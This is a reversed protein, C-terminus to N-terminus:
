FRKTIAGHAIKPDNFPYLLAMRSFARHMPLAPNIAQAIAGNIRLSGYSGGAGVRQDILATSRGVERSNLESIEPDVTDITADVTDVAPGATAVTPDITSSRASSGSGRRVWHAFTAECRNGPLCPYQSTGATLRLVAPRTVAIAASAPASTDSSLM